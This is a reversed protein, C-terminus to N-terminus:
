YLDKRKHDPYDEEGALFDECRHILSQRRMHHEAQRGGTMSETKGCGMCDYSYTPSGGSGSPTMKMNTLSVYRDEAPVSPRIPVKKKRAM